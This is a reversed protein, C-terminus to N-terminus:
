GMGSLGESGTIERIRQGHVVLNWIANGRHLAPFCIDMVRELLDRLTASNKNMCGIGLGNLCNMLEKAELDLPVLRAVAHLNFLEFYHSEFQSSVIFYVKEM